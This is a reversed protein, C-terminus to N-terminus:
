YGDFKVPNKTRILSRSYLFNDLPLYTKINEEDYVLDIFGQCGGKGVRQDLEGVSTRTSVSM